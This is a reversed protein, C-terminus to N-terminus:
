RSFFRALLKNRLLNVMKKILDYGFELCVVLFDPINKTAVGRKMIGLDILQQSSELKLSDAPDYLTFNNQNRIIKAYEKYESAGQWHQERTIEEQVYDLFSSFYKFHLLCGTTSSVQINNIMHSSYLKMQSNYKILPFKTLCYLKKKNQNSTAFVRQRLGGWYYNNSIGERHHFFQREFFSCSGLFDEGPQYNTAVVPKDSYMDLMVVQLANKGQKDLHHCLQPISQEECDPYYLIEDADIILSWRGLAYKQLLSTLWNLKHDFHQATHWVHVDPQQLLYNLTNDQSDNDVVFFNTIGTKRYYEFIFPLRLMENRVVLFCLYSQSTIIIPHTDRRQLKYLGTDELINM